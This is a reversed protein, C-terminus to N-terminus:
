EEGAGKERLAKLIKEPTLPLDKIRVGIADYVANGIAPATPALAPEGVGKAGFPGDQHPAEVFLSTVPPSDMATPIRYDRFNPNLVRGDKLTLEEMLATGVGTVVAGEIQQECNLPNLVRGLDHAAAVKLVEVKGTAPDVEVEVAQAGYLWFITPYVGQGTEPDLPTADPVAFTGSGIIPKGKGYTIGMRIAAIPIGSGTSGKVFVFGDKAELDEPRAELQDAAVELLQKKADAAARKVANGM